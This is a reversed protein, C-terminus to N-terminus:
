STRAWIQLEGRYPFRVPLAEGDLAHRIEDAVAGRADDPLAAIFSTSLARDVVADADAPRSNDVALEEALAFRADAEIARRWVMDRHRPTDDAHRDIIAMYRRYWAQDGEKVNWITFLHGGPALVRHIEDLAPGHDFWHFAQAVVVAGFGGDDAPLGEATGDRAEIGPVADVLAARMAEVPEVAVPRLGRAALMTTLVGTGAGIELVPRGGVLEVLRDVLEPHYDPRAARYSEVGREFGVAAARHVPESGGNM